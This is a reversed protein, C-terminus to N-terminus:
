YYLPAWSGPRWSMFKWDEFPMSNTADQAIPCIFLLFCSGPSIYHTCRTLELSQGSRVGGDGVWLAMIINHFIVHTPVNQHLMFGCTLRVFWILWFTVNNLRNLTTLSPGLVRAELAYIQISGFAHFHIVINNSHCIFLVLGLLSMTLEVPPAGIISGKEHQWRGGVFGRCM